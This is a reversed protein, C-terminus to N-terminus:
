RLEQLVCDAQLSLNQALHSLSCHNLLTDACNGSGSAPSEQQLDPFVHYM